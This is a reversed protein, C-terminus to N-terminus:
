PYPEDDPSNSYFLFTSLSFHQHIFKRQWSNKSTSRQQEWLFAATIELFDGFVMTTKATKPKGGFVLSMGAFALVLGAIKSFNLRDGKLFFHAGVAVVFPSLYVFVVSRAADTYLMGFYICAFELGFLLGVM